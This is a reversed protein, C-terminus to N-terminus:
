SKILVDQLMKFSRKELWSVFHLSISQTLIFILSGCICQCFRWRSPFHFHTGRVTRLQFVDQGLFTRLVLQWIQAAFNPSQHILESPEPCGGLLFMCQWHLWMAAARCARCLIECPLTVLAHGDQWECWGLWATKCPCVCCCLTTCKQTRITRITRTRIQPGKSIVGEYMLGKNQLVEFLRSISLRWLRLVFDKLTQIFHIFCLHWLTNDRCHPWESLLVVYSVCAVIATGRQLQFRSGLSGVRGVPLQTAVLILSSWRPDVLIMSDWQFKGISLEYHEYLTWIHSSKWMHVHGGLIQMQLWTPFLKELGFDTGEGARVEWLDEPRGGPLFPSACISTAAAHLQMKWDAKIWLVTMLIVIMTM